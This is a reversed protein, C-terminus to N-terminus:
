GIQPGGLQARFTAIETVATGLLAQHTSRIEAELDNPQTGDRDQVAFSGAARQAMLSLLHSCLEYSTM